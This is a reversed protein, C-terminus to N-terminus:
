KNLRFRKKKKKNKQRVDLSAMLVFSWLADFISNRYHSHPCLSHPCPGKTLPGKRWDFATHTYMTESNVLEHQRMRNDLSLLERRRISYTSPQCWAPIVLFVQQVLNPRSRYLRLVLFSEQMILFWYHSIIAGIVYVEHIWVFIWQLPGLILSWSFVNPCSIELVLRFACLSFENHCCVHPLTGRCLVKKKCFIRYLKRMPESDSHLTLWLLSFIAWNWWMFLGICRSVCCSIYEEWLFHLFVWIAKSWLLMWRQFSALSSRPWVFSNFWMWRCQRLGVAM